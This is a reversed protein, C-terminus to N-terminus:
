SKAETESVVRIRAQAMMKRVDAWEMKVKCCFGKMLSFAKGTEEDTINVPLDSVNKIYCSAM